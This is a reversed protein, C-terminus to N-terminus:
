LIYSLCILYYFGTSKGSGLLTQTIEIQNRIGLRGIWTFDFGGRFAGYIGAVNASKGTVDPLMSAQAFGISAGLYTSIDRTMMTGPRLEDAKYVTTPSNGPYYFTATLGSYSISSAAPSLSVSRLHEVGLSVKTTFVYDIGALMGYPGESRQIENSASATGFGGGFYIRALEDAYSNVSLFLFVLSLKRLM